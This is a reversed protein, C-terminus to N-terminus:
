SVHSRTEIEKPADVICGRPMVHSADVCRACSARFCRTIFRLEVCYRITTMVTMFLMKLATAQRYVVTTEEKLTSLNEAFCQFVHQM